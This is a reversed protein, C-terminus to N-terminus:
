SQQLYQCNRTFQQKYDHNDGGKELVDASVEKFIGVGTADM